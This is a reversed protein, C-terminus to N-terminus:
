LDEVTSILAGASHALSDVAAFEEVLANHGDGGVAITDM